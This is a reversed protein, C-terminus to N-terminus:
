FKVRVKSGSATGEMAIVEAVGSTTTATVRGGDSALTVKNGPVISTAAASFTTEFIVDDSVPIVPVLQGAAVAAKNEQMCIYTPVDTAGAKALKGSSLVMAEGVFTAIASCPMMEWPIIGDHKETVPLFAM